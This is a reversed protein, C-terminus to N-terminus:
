LQVDEARFVPGDKCIRRNHVHSHSDIETTECVCGLCAGVGCAMREELSLLCEIGAEKAYAKVARLMPTPGCAYIIDAKVGQERIADLVTGHTGVSGDDTAIVVKAYKKMEDALFTEANAYGLVATKEEVHLQKALELMPPIGIGGGILLANKESDTDYGNGLPGLIRIEDGTRYGSFEDTGAGAVRYVLRLAGLDTNIECISIPRPLLRSADACYLSVFQGPRAAEATEDSVRLWLDYVGSALQKQSLVAAQEMKRDAM